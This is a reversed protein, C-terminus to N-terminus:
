PIITEYTYAVTLSPSVGDTITLYILTPSDYSNYSRLNLSEQRATLVKNPLVDSGGASTGLKVTGSGSVMVYDVAILKSNAPLTFTASTAISTIKDKSPVRTEFSAVDTQIDSIDSANQTIDNNLEQVLYPYSVKFNNFGGGGDPRILTFFGDIVVTTETLESIKIDSGAM